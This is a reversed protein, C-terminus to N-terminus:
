YLAVVCFVYVLGVGPSSLGTRAIPSFVSVINVSMSPVLRPTTSLPLVYTAMSLVLKPLGSESDMEFAELM